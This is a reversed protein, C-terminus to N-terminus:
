GLTARSVTSALSIHTGPPLIFGIQLDTAEDGYLTPWVDTLRFYERTNVPINLNLVALRNQLVPGCRKSSHM